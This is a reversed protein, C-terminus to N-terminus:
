DLGFKTIAMIIIIGVKHSPGFSINEVVDKLLCHLVWVQRGGERGGRGREGVSECPRLGLGFGRGRLRVPPVVIDEM